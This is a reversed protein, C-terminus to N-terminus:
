DLVDPTKVSHIRKVLERPTKAFGDALIKRAYEIPEDELYFIKKNLAAAYGIEMNLSNGVYGGVNMVFIADSKRIKFFHNHTLGSALEIKDQETHKDWKEGSGYLAPEYVNIGLRKLGAAFKRAEKKFKHSCCIAITYM